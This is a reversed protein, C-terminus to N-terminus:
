CLRPVAPKAAPTTLSWMMGARPPRPYIFFLNAPSWGAMEIEVDLLPLGVTRVSPLVAVFRRLIQPPCLLM